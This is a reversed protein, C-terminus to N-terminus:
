NTEIMGSAIPQSRPVPVGGRQEESIAFGDVPLDVRFATLGPRNGLVGASVTAKGVLAWLQYTRDESVPPLLPHYLYGTGDPLVVVKALTSGEEAVLEVSRSQPDALAVRVLGDLHQQSVSDALEDFQDGQQVL